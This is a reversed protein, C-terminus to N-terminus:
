LSIQLRAKDADRNESCMASQEEVSVCVCVCVCEYMRMAKQVSEIKERPQEDITDEAYFVRCSTLKGVRCRSHFSLICAAHRLLSHWSFTQFRDPELNVSSVQKDIFSHTAKDQRRWTSSHSSGRNRKGHSDNSM